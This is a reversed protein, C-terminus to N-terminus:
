TVARLARRARLQQTSGSGCQRAERIGGVCTPHDVNVAALGIALAYSRRASPTFRRDRVAANRKTSRGSFPCSEPLAAEVHRRRLRLWREPASCGTKRGLDRVVFRSMGLVRQEMLGHLALELGKECAGALTALGRGAEDLVLEAGIQAAADRGVAEKAQAAVLALELTEDGERALAAAEAGGAAPAAHGVGGRVEDVAHQGLYGDSMATPVARRGSTTM